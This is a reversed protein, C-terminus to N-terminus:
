ILKPNYFDISYLHFDKFSNTIKVKLDDTCNMFILKKIKLLKLKSLITETIKVKEINLTLTDLNTWTSVIDFSNELNISLVAERINKNVLFAPIRQDSTLSISCFCIKPLSTSDWGKYCVSNASIVLNELNTLRGTNSPLWVKKNSMIVLERLSHLNDFLRSRLRICKESRIDLIALNSLQGFGNPFTKFSIKGSIFLHQLKKLNAISVPLFIKKNSQLECSRLNSLGGIEIPINRPMSRRSSALIGISDKLDLRKKLQISSKGANPAIRYYVHLGTSNIGGETLHLSDLEVYLQDILQHSNFCQAFASGGFM